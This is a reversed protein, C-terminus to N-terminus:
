PPPRERRRLGRARTRSSRRAAAAATARPRCSRWASAAREHPVVAARALEPPVAAQRLPVHKGPEHAPLGESGDAAWYIPRDRCPVRAARPMADWRVPPNTLFIRAEVSTARAGAAARAEVGPCTSEPSVAMTRTLAPRTRSM